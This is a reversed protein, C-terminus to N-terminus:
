PQWIGKRRIILPNFTKTNIYVAPFAFDKNAIEYLYFVKILFDKGHKNELDFIGNYITGVPMTSILRDDEKIYGDSYLQYSKGEAIILISYEYKEVCQKNSSLLEDIRKSYVKDIYNYDIHSHRDFFQLNTLILQQYIANTDCAIIVKGFDTTIVRLPLNSKHYYNDYDIRVVSPIEILLHFVGEEKTLAFSYM